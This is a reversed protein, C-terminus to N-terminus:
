WGLEKITNQFIEYLQDSMGFRERHIELSKQMSGNHRMTAAKWDSLMEVLDVLTMGNIGNEFHEPHHRNSEFHHRLLPNLEKVTAEYQPSGYGFEIEVARLKPKLKDNLSKEPEQLKSADHEFQRDMLKRRIQEIFGFVAKVHSRTEAESDYM